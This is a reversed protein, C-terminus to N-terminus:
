YDEDEMGERRQAYMESSDKIKDEIHWLLTFVFLTLASVFIAIPFLGFGSAIGVGAAVWLGAATTLGRIKDGKFIILGAGIFGIGVIVQSMVRLPDLTTREIYFETVIMSIIVFTAAGMSVLAYTRMGATKRAMIREAGLLMGLVMATTIRVFIELTDGYTVLLEVNNEM